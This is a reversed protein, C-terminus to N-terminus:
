IYIEGELYLRAKGSIGVRGGNDRVFLRGGRKSLQLATMRTRGLRRAWFPALTSHASGTVPDEPIGEAPAFYRSVFDVSRGSATAIFGSYGQIERLLSMDPALNRVCDENELLLLLDRSGHAEIVPAGLAEEMIPTVKTKAPMRSPFDLEFMDGDRCVGLEGSQSHFTLTVAKKDYYNMLVYASALTAHGCLDMEACPTFWRIKYTKDGTKIPFATESLNNQAAIAQLEWDGPWEDMICVGAPNGTFPADAFADVVYYKM